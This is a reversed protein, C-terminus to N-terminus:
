DPLASATWHFILSCGKGHDDLDSPLFGKVSDQGHPKYLKPVLLAKRDVCYQYLTDFEM